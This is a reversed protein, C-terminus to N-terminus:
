SLTGPGMEGDGRRHELFARATSSRGGVHSGLAQLGTEPTRVFSVCLFPSDGGERTAKGQAQEQGERGPTVDSSWHLDTRICLAM